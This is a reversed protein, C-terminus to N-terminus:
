NSNSEIITNTGQDAKEFVEPLFSNITSVGYGMEAFMRMMEWLALLLDDEQAKTLNFEAIDDRYDDLNCKM